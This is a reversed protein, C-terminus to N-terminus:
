LVDESDVNVFQVLDKAPQKADTNVFEMLQEFVATRQKFRAASIPKGGNVRREEPDEQMEVVSKPATKLADTVSTRVPSSADAMPDDQEWTKTPEVPSDERSRKRTHSTESASSSPSLLHSLLSRFITAEDADGHDVVASVETQLYSLAKIPTSDECLERFRLRPNLFANM